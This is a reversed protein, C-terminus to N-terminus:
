QRDMFLKLAILYFSITVPFAYICCAKEEWDWSERKRLLLLLLLLLLL